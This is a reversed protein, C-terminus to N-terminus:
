IKGLLVKANELAEPTLKEGSMMSAIETVREDASLKKISSITRQDDTHKYVKFHESGMAAVQPLHTISLVQVNEAIRQMIKGMRAAIEGSVGTDIEDFLITPINMSGAMLSKLALMLRSLEGGSAVKEIPQVAVSKNASFLFSINDIGNPSLETIENAIEFEAHPMGLDILMSKIYKQTKAFSASRKASLKKAVERVDKEKASFKKELDAIEDELNGSNDVYGKYEEYKQKLEAINAARHKTMLGMLLDIRDNTAQLQQPNVEVQTLLKGITDNIDSLEILVSGVRNELEEAPKFDKAIKTLNGRMQKLLASASYEGADFLNSIDYLASKIEEANELMSARAELEDMEDDAGLKANEIEQAQFRYYDIDRLAKALENKKKVLLNELSQYEAYQQKYEEFLPLTLAASDVIRLRYPLTTLSLNEHQSHLDLFNDTLSKLVALTVPMDNIFARSKGEPLIERRVITEDSYDVDNEAFLDKLGLKTIDFTAEIVCKKDKSFLVDTDARKGLLLSIAGIIMSKGSGTEGTIVSFGSNFDIDLKEIIIYNRISLNNIM